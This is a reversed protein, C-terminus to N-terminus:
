CGPWGHHGLMLADFMALSCRNLTGSLECLLNSCTNCASAFEDDIAQAATAPSARSATPMRWECAPNRKNHDVCYAGCSTSSNCYMYSDCGPMINCYAECDSITATVITTGASPIVSSVDLVLVDLKHVLGDKQKYTQAGAGSYLDVCYILCIFGVLYTVKM